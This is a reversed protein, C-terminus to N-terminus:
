HAPRHGLSIHGVHPSAVRERETAAHAIAVLRRVASANAATAVVLVAALIPLLAIRGGLGAAGAAATAFPTLLAGLFLLAAREARRMSGRPAPVRLAEAKATSYSVMFSGALAFLVLLVAVVDSRLFVLVGGLFFFEVYRDASSDLVAGAVSTTRAERAVLGDVADALSAFASILAAVGFHGTGLAIGTMAGLVVSSATVATASVGLRVLASAFPALVWYAGEMAPKPIVLSAGAREVRANRAAGHRAVRLAYLVIALAIASSTGIACALDITM